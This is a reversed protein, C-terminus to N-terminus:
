WVILGDADHATAKKIIETNFLGYAYRDIVKVVICIDISFKESFVNPRLATNASGEHAVSPYIVGDLDPYQQKLLKYLIRSHLYKKFSAKKDSFIEAALADMYVFSRMAHPPMNNIVKKLNHTISHHFFANGHYANLIEGVMLLSPPSLEIVGIMHIFDGPQAKIEALATNASGSLYLVPENAENM